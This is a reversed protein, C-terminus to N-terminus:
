FSAKVVEGWLAEGGISVDSYLVSREQVWADGAKELLCAASRRACSKVRDWGGLGQELTSTAVYKRAAACGTRKVAMRKRVAAAM